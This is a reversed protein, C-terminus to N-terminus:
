PIYWGVSVTNAHDSHSKTLCSSQLHKLLASIHLVSLIFPMVQSNYPKKRKNSPCKTNGLKNEQYNQHIAIYYM